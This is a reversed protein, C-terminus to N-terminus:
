HLNKIEEDSAIKMQVSLVYIHSNDLTILQVPKSGEEAIEMMGNYVLEEAAKWDM